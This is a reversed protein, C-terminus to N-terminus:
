PWIGGFDLGATESLGCMLNMNQIAQGAMGKVLNDIASIVVVRGTRDDIELGIHCANSGLTHKTAPTGQSYIHVFPSTRYYDAYRARLSDATESGALNAYCTALIGRSMPILHPTFSIRIESGAVATLAQEIEPVHRHKGGVKYASVSENAEPFHYDSGFKSRGAGSVGSKADVIISTNDISQSSLLPALALITATPYCGPNGVLTSDRIQESHLEPLGYAAQPCLEPSSHAFGYWVPFVACDKFRFDASLDIVKCNAELLGPAINMAKGNDQALFVIDCNYKASGDGFSEFTLGDFASSRLGPFASYPPKGANTESILTQLRVGPHSALMRMLEGGGYGSAGVIGVRMM